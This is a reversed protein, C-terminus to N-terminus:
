EAQAKRGGAGQAKRTRSRPAPAEQGVQEEEQGQQQLQQPLSPKHRLGRAKDHDSSLPWGGAALGRILAAEVDKAASSGGARRPVLCYVARLSTHVRRSGPVTLAQGAAKRQRKEAKRHDELRQAIDDTEGVYLRGDWRWLVYVTSEHYHGPAPAQGPEVWNLHGLEPPLDPGPGSSSDAAAAAEAAEEQAARAAERRVLDRLKGGAQLLAWDSDQASVAGREVAGAAEAEAEAPPPGPAPEATDTAGGSVVGGGAAVAAVAMARDAPAASAPWTEAAAPTAAAVAPWAQAAAPGAEEEQLAQPTGQSAQQPQEHDGRTHVALPAEAWEAAEEQLAAAQLAAAGRGSPAWGWGAASSPTINDTTNTSASTAPTFPEPAEEVGAAVSGASGPPLELPELQLPQPHHQASYAAARAATMMGGLRVEHAAAAALVERQLGCDEAVQLALSRLCVQDEVVRRTPRLVAGGVGGGAGGGAARPEPRVEMAWYQLRRRQEHPALLYVLDHLHTAFVGAAGAAVLDEVVAAALASGAVVETGKGLEDLLVLAAGRERRSVALTNATDEMEVAFASKGEMPSDGSFNRLSLARLWTASLRLPPRAAAAAGAEGPPPPPPPPPPYGPGPGAPVALGCVSLLAAAAVSRLVTSKGAMNPGTLLALRGAACRLDNRVGERADMWYPWLGPLCLDVRRGPCAGAAAAPSGPPALTHARPMDPWNWGAQKARLVHGALAAFAVSLENAALLAVLHGDPGAHLQRCLERLLRRSEKDAAEVAEVYAQTAAQLARSSWRDPEPRGKRNLPRVLELGAAARVAEQATREAAGTLRKGGAGVLRVWVADDHAALKVEGAVGARELAAALALLESVMAGRRAEVAAAALPMRQPRVALQFRELRGMLRGAEWLADAALRGCSGPPPVFPQLAAPLLQLQQQASAAASRRAPAAGVAPGEDEDEDGDRSGSPSDGGSGAAAAEAAGVLAALESAQPVVAAIAEAAAECQAALVAPPVEAWATGGRADLSWRLVGLLACHMEAMAPGRLRLLEVVRTLMVHMERLTNHGAVGTQLLAIIRPSAISTVVVPLAPAGPGPAALHGCVVRIDEAATPPPPLLLLLRFWDRVAAPVGDGLAAALLSPVGRAGGLGLQTVTSLSPPLPAPAVGGGGAPLASDGVVVQMRDGTARDLGLQRCLTAVFGAVDPGGVGEWAQGSAGGGSAGGGGGRTAAAAAASSRAPPAASKFEAVTVGLQSALERALSARRGVAAAQQREREAVSTHLYLPQALGTAHLQAALAESGLLATVDLRNRAACYRFLRYGDGSPVSVGTIPRPLPTDDVAAGAAEDEVDGFLYYPSSASVLPMLQRAKTPLASFGGGRTVGGGGRALDGVEEVIAVVFGAGILRNLQQRLTSPAKPFGAKAVGSLPTMPNLGCHQCLVLADFGVAEYFDGIRVLVVATGHKKKAGLFEGYCQVRSKARLKALGLPHEWDLSGLLGSLEPKEIAAM